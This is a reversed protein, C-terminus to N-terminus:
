RHAGERDSHGEHHHPGPHGRRSGVGPAEPWTCETVEGGRVEIRCVTGGKSARLRLEHRGARLCGFVAAYSPDAAPPRARVSVHSGEWDAPLRRIEIESGELAGSTWVVAAGVEGGIDLVVPGLSPGFAAHAVTASM